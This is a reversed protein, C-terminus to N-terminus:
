NVNRYARPSLGAKSKFLKSFHQPYDFGLSYAIESVSDSSNLLTTKAKEIIFLHIQEQASKGTEKKLLDSLYNTSLNLERACYHVTPVGLDHAKGTRYYSKLLREFKSVVDSNLNTRTYFQRDYFRRCYDLLLQINAVILHQSHQDLNQSYERIIKDLLEEITIREDDSIHLAENADYDFFSYGEIKEALDSRRLLDPHFILSWGAPHPSDDENEYEVVQGPAMFVLTGEQYDYSNRGYKLTGCSGQKLAIQYLDLVVRVDQVASDNEIEEARLVSVLPHKPKPLGLAEHIQSISQLTVTEPM